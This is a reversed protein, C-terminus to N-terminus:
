IAGAPEVADVVIDVREGDGEGFLAVIDPQAVVSPTELTEAVRGERGFIASVPFVPLCVETELIDRRPDVEDKVFGPQLRERIHPM